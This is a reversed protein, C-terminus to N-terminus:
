IFFIVLFLLHQRLLYPYGPSMLGSRVVLGLRNSSRYYAAHLVQNSEVKAGKKSLAFLLTAIPQFVGKRYLKHWILYVASLGILPLAFYLGNQTLSLGLSGVYQIGYTINKILVAILGAVLGVLASLILVFNRESIHKYKWILFKRLIASLTANV